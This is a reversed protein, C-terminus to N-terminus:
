YPILVNDIVQIVGTSAFQDAAAIAGGNVYFNGNADSDVFIVDGQLTNTFQKAVLQNAYLQQPVVHYLLVQQLATINNLLNQLTGAPLAAFANNTPAFVTASFLASVAPVLGAKSLATVLTSLSPNALAQQVISVRGVLVSDIVHLYGNSAAIDAKTVRAQNIYVKGTATGTVTVDAGETTQAAGLSVLQSATLPKSLVHYLLVDTLATVNALLGQVVGAPLASFADDTPALLTVQGNQLM